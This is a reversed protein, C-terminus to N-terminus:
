EDHITSSVRAYGNAASQKKRMTFANTSVLRQHTIPAIAAESTAGKTRPSSTTIGIMNAMAATNTTQDLSQPM